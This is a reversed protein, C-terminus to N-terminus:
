DSGVSAISKKRWHGEGTTRRSGRIKYACHTHVTRSWTATTRQLIVGDGLFIKGWLDVAHEQVVDAGPRLQVVDERFHLLRAERLQTARQLCPLQM